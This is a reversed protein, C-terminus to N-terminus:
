VANGVLALKPVISLAPAPEISATINLSTCTALITEQLKEAKGFLHIRKQHKPFFQGKTLVEGVADKWDAVRKIEIVETDTVLDIRGAVTYAEMVGGLAKHMRLQIAYEPGKRGQIQLWDACHSWDHIKPLWKRLTSSSIKLDQCIQGESPTKGQIHMMELYFYLRCGSGNFDGRKLMEILSDTQIGVPIMGPELRDSIFDIVLEETLDSAEVKPKWGTISQIWQEIGMKAFKRYSFLATETKHRSEFAYFEIMAACFDSPFLIVNTSYGDFKLTVQEPIPMGAFEKLCEPLSKGTTTQQIRESMSQQTIGCLYALGKKSIKGIGTKTESFFEVGDQEVRTFSM